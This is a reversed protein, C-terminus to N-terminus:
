VEAAKCGYGSKLRAEPTLRSSFDPAPARLATKNYVEAENQCSRRRRQFWAYQRKGKWQVIEAVHLPPPGAANAVAAEGYHGVWAKHEPSSM